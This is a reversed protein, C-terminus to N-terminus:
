EGVPRYPVGINQFLFAYMDAAEDIRKSTPKGAGHGAKSEIRILVPAEGAQCHQMTAAFKFSHAPVVRDDHDATMVLTAPYKVGEKINHLPSYAYIYPFQEASDSSGYEVAWGWGITFKHYRLMDMVGVQPLCVAYLDPRQVECAGVLLGGNSGGNIALKDSSTYKQAILYEAAAIFDDFVNQKNELMGAKHWAEGYESGGRLNAVCYVGGQEVFMLASPNFGPTMNIQFGGYGYLLCPNKGNLKLDKRRTIFMPVQTGDKSAYFVQETVFLSPDFAVEPAKYLTSEGTAIDYRYITAPATYNSLSYYLEADEKEGSFGGVSGIAPLTVERVLKGDYDYQAVKSQADQLYSAFLYGGATGVGELLNREHEPIVTEIKSPDNLSIRKLAYNLAGDNTVFYLNDEKCDVPAYDHAFGALLTRFKKESTKRYLIETGSTGESAIIFLWKGDESPWASFYRLPHAKDEYVLRDASQPTGLQHYYVKQFQNQSSYVGSKPADYASYYFGKSDSTWTAGSFKVWNIRDETLAKTETDMVRIEVWDSGSAAAAYAFYRGDKSFSAAALAVTGDESLTNPDLFVEGAQGPQATRYLVSQNQLGDNYYYYYWDGHKAPAGEKPYNWLQTLRTRIADRFPIQSLYDETVANEAAVWAATAESNDDELWRYPDPVETGFYNDVVEGRATEPYPLHKIQKMNNCGTTALAAAGALAVVSWLYCKM